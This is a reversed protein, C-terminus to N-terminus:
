GLLISLGRKLTRLRLMLTWVRLSATVVDSILDSVFLKLGLRHRLPQWLRNSVSTLAPIRLLLFIMMVLRGADLFLLIILRSAVSCLDRVCVLLLRDVVGPGCPDEVPPAGVPPAVARPAGVPPAVVPVGVPPVVVPAGVPPAAVPPSGVPPAVPPVGVPPAAVVPCAWPAVYTM